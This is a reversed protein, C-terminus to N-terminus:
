PKTGGRLAEQMVKAVSTNDVYAGRVPDQGAILSDFRNVQAGRAFLPVLSNSHGKSHYMLGPMKGAGQDTLPQFPEKDSNPGWLLGTEHDATILVLTESWNSHTEVWQVVAEVASNFDIMEEVMRHGLNSHNAWDVAGGEIMLFFGSSNQSLVNLAGRAMTALTPVTANLPTDEAPSQASKNKTRAQQLTTAVQATGLVKAPVPGAVLAEFEAKTSVPRFGRYLGGPAKRAAEIATWIEKGGVYKFEQGSVLEGTIGKLIEGASTAKAKGKKAQWPKGDNDFDPNGAGMIVDLVGGNLMQLAIDQYEDREAVHANSFGAPTAHSWEVTTVVGAALGLSKALESMTPKLPQDLDSWNIANNFTKQGTSLATASAASDTYRGKLWDYGKERDWAKAPDYVVAAEQQGTGQPKKSTNLPYTQVALQKWEPGNYIQTGRSKAGDWRGQYMSGAAFANFGTGDAVLIIVNRKAAPPEAHVGAFMGLLLGLCLKKFM